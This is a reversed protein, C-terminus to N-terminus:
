NRNGGNGSGGTFWDWFGRTPINSKATKKAM